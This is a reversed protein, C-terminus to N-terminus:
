LRRYGHSKAREGEFGVLRSWDRAPQEIENEERKQEQKDVAPTLLSFAKCFM